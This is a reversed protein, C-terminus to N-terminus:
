GVLPMSVKSEKLTFYIQMLFKRATAVLAKGHGKKDKLRLYFSRLVGPKRIHINTVECLIWRLFKSGQHTIGRSHSTKGSEYLGPAIGAYGVLKKPSPFRHIDGIEAIIMASALTGIGPIQKLLEGQPYEKLMVLMKKDAVSILNNYYEIQDLLQQKQFEFVDPLTLARLWQRGKVGFLDSYNETPRLNLKVLIAHLQNKLKTRAQTLRIHQRTIERLAQIKPPPAYSQPILDGRLLDCLINADLRDNKVKADAIARTKLPHALTTKCGLKQLTEFMWYYSTTAEMVASCPAKLYPSMIKQVASLDHSVRAQMLREGLQNKIVFFSAQTGLDIGIFYNEM